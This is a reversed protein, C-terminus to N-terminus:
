RFFENVSEDWPKNKEHLYIYLSLFSGEDEYGMLERNRFFVYYGDDNMIVDGMYVGNPYFVKWGEEIKEETLGHSLSNM